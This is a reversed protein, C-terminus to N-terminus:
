LQRNLRALVRERGLAELVADISPTQPVGLVVVRLPIAVQPMKLGHQQLTEKIAAAISAKDWAVDALRLRLSQLPARVADTVHAAIDEENPTVPVFYMVLWDALEATTACRDKFLACM